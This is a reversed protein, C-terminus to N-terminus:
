FLNLIFTSVYKLILADFYFKFMDFEKHVCISHLATCSTEEEKSMNKLFCGWENVVVGDNEVIEAEVVDVEVFVADVVDDIEVVM